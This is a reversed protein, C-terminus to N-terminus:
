QLYVELNYILTGKPILPYNDFPKHFTGNPIFDEKIEYDLFKLQKKFVIDAIIKVINKNSLEQPLSFDFRRHGYGQIHDKLRMLEVTEKRM